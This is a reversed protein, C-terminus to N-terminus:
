NTKTTSTNERWKMRTKHLLVLQDYHRRETRRWETSMRKTEPVTANHGRLINVKGWRLTRVWCMGTGYLNCAMGM